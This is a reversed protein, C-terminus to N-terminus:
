EALLDNAVIVRIVEPISSTVQEEGHICLHGLKALEHTARNCEQVKFVCEFNIFCDAALAKIEAILVGVATDDFSESTIAGVVM